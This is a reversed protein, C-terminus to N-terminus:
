EISLVPIFFINPRGLHPSLYQPLNHNVAAYTTFLAVFSRLLRRSSVLGIVSYQLLTCHEARQPWRSSCSYLLLIWIACLRTTGDM